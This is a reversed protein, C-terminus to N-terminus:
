EEEITPPNLMQQLVLILNQACDRSMVLESVSEIRVDQVPIKQVGAGTDPTLHLVPSEQFFSLIVEDRDSNYAGFYRNVYQM